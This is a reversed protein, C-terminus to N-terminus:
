LLTSKGCGSAGLLCVFEGPAVDLDIGDLVPTPSGRFAKGVGSIRVASQIVGAGTGTGAGTGIGNGTGISTGTGPRVTSEITATM